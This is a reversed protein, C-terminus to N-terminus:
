ERGSFVRKLQIAVHTEDFGLSVGTQDFASDDKQYGVLASLETRPGVNFNLRTNIRFLDGSQDGAGGARNFDRRM